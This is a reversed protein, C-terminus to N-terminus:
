EKERASRQRSAAFFAAAEELLANIRKIERNEKALSKIESRLRQIEAAQTMAGGPTQTGAGMDIRGIRAASVWHSLTSPAVGLEISAQGNGIEQVLKVAEAKYEATYKRAPKRNGKTMKNVEM